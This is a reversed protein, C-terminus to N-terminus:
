QGESVPAPPPGIRTVAPDDWGGKVTYKIQTGKEFPKKVLSHIVAVAAGVV